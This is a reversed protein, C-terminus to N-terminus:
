LDPFFTAIVPARYYMKLMVGAATPAEFPRGDLRLARRRIAQDAAENAVRKWEGADLDKIVTKRKPKGPRLQPPQLVQRDPGRRYLAYEYRTMNPHKFDRTISIIQGQGQLATLFLGEDHCGLIEGKRIGEGTVVHRMTEDTVGRFEKFFEVGYYAMSQASYRQVLDRMRPAGLEDVFRRIESPMMVRLLGDVTERGLQNVLLRAELEGIERSLTRLTRALAEAELSFRRLLRVARILFGAGDTFAGVLMGPLMHGAWRGPHGSELDEWDIMARLAEGPNELMGLLGRAADMPHLAGQVLGDVTGTVEDRIGGFFDGALNRVDEGPLALPVLPPEVPQSALRAM